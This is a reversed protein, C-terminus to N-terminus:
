AALKKVARPKRPAAPKRAKVPAVAKVIPASTVDLLDVLPTPQTPIGINAFMRRLRVVAERKTRGIATLTTGGVTGQYNNGAIFKQNTNM